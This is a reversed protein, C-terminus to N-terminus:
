RIAGGAFAHAEIEVLLERRCIDAQWWAARAAAAPAAAALLARVAPLDAPRRLYVTLDLDDLAFRADSKAAAADLVARLNALTERTQAQVDGEHLSDEGVISATGSVFLGVRGGGADALVARSFTPAKPGYRRSYRWAPVQRPNELPQVQTRGALFRVSLSGDGKGLCCAAPAGAFADVGAAVFAQQRGANFQRYRELGQAEENIRPLYNWLRVLPRGHRALCAFVQDYAARALAEVGRGDEPLDLAGFLWQGDDAWRLAGETGGQVAAAGCWLDAGPGALPQLGAAGLDLVGLLGQAAAAGAARSAQLPAHATAPHATPAGSM